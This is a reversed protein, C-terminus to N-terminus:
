ILGGKRHTRIEANPAIWKFRMGPRATTAPSCPQHGSRNVYSAMDTLWLESHRTARSITHKLRSSGPLRESWRGTGWASSLHDCIRRNESPNWHKKRTGPQSASRLVFRAEEIRSQTGPSCCGPRPCSCLYTAQRTGRREPRDVACEIRKESLLPIGLPANGFPM